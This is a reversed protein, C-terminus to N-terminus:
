IPASTPGNPANHQHGNFSRGGLTADAAQVLGSVHFNGPVAGGGSTTIGADACIAGEAVVTQTATVPGDLTISGGRLKVTAGVLNVAGGATGDLDGGASATINGGAQAQISGPTTVTVLKADPDLCVTTGDEMQVLFQRASAAPAPDAQSYLAGLVVGDEGHEDLLTAVQSGVRPLWFARAGLAFPVAVPLWDSVLNDEDPFQVRVRGRAPDLAQV